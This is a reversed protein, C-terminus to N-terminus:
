NLCTASEAAPLVRGIVRYHVTLKILREPQILWDCGAINPQWRGILVGASTEIAVLQGAVVDAPITIFRANRALETHTSVVRYRM